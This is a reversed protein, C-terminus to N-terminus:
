PSVHIRAEQMSKAMPSESFLLHADLPDQRANMIKPFNQLRAMGGEHRSDCLAGHPKGDQVRVAHMNGNETSSVVITEDAIGLDDLQAM